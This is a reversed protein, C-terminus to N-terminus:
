RHRLRQSPPLCLHPADIVWAVQFPKSSTATEVVHGLVQRPGMGCSLPDWWQLIWGLHHSVWAVLLLDSFFCAPLCLFFTILTPLCAMLVAVTSIAPARPPTQQRGAMLTCEKSAPGIVVMMVLWRCQCFPALAFCSSCFQLWVCSAHLRALCKDTHNTFIRSSQMCAKSLTQQQTTAVQNYNVLELSAEPM